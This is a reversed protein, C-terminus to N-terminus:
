RIRGEAQMQAKLAVRQQPNLPWFQIVSHRPPPPPANREAMERALREIKRQAQLQALWTLNTELYDHLVDLVRAARQEEATLAATKIETLVYAPTGDQPFQKALVAQAAELPGEEEAGIGMILTYVTTETEVDTGIGELLRFDINSLAKISPGGNVACRLSTFGDDHVTASLTIIESEKHGRRLRIAEEEATLIVAQVTRAPQPPPAEIRQFIVAGGDQQRVSTQALVTLAARAPSQVPATEQASTSTTTWLILFLFFRPHMRQYVVPFTYSIRM